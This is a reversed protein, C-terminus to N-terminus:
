EIKIKVQSITIDKRPQIEISNTGEHVFPNINRYINLNYTDVPVEYGNIIFDVKKYEKNTFYAELLLDVGSKLEPEDEYTTYTTSPCNPRDGDENRYQDPCASCESVTISPTCVSDMGTFPVDDCWYNGTQEAYCCDKDYDSSCGPPCYEDEDDGCMGEFDEHPDNNRDEYGSPCNNVYSALIQNVCRDRPNTTKIDCWYNQNSEDFCCDKDEFAECNDPCYGDVKGCYKEGTQSTVFLDEDLEFYYIPYEPDKLNVELELMDVIYSGADSQFELRNEGEQLVTKGVDFFNKIGCDPVGYYVRQGNLLISLHGVAGVCDPFFQLSATELHEYESEALYVKQMNFNHSDDTIDGAIMVNSLEYENMTWFAFGPSSAAFYLINNDKLLNTPLSIPTPSGRELPGEFILDGNLFIYLAGSAKQINFSLKLNDANGRDIVFPMEAGKKEFASNKVYLASLEGILNANTETYITFSSLSHEITSEKIYSIDGVNVSFPTTGILHTYGGSITSPTGPIEGDDLLAARDSPPLFLIYFIIAITILLILFAAGSSNQFSEAGKKGRILRQVGM